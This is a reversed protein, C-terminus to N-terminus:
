LIEKIYLFFHYGFEEGGGIAKGEKGGEYIERSIGQNKERGPKGRFFNQRKGSPPHM